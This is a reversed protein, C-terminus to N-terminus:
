EAAHQQDAGDALDTDGEVAPPITALQPKTSKGIPVVTEGITGKGEAADVLDAPMFIKLEKLLGNFSRLFDDRKAEEMDVLRFALRAAQPQIHARKKIEKYATSMEQAHEGVGSMAPRIDERYIRAALEFDPKPVEGSITGETKKGRAMDDEKPQPAPEPAPIPQPDPQPTVPEDPVPEANAFAQRGEALSTRLEDAEILRAEGIGIGAEIAASMMSRENRRASRYRQLQLSGPPTM